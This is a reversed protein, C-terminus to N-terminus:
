VFIYQADAILEYEKLYKACLTLFIPFFGFEAKM